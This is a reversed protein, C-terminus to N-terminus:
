TNLQRLAFLTLAGVVLESVKNEVTYDLHFQMRTPAFIFTSKNRRFPTSSASSLIDGSNEIMIVTHVCVCM